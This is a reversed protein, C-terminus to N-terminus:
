TKRLGTLTLSGCLCEQTLITRELYCNARDKEVNHCLTLPLSLVLFYWFISLVRRPNVEKGGQSEAERGTQGRNGQGM